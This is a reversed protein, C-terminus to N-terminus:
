FCYLATRGQGKIKKQKNTKNTYQKDFPDYTKMQPPGSVEEKGMINEM